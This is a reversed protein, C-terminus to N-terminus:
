LRGCGVVGGVDRRFWREAPKITFGSKDTETFTVVIVALQCVGTALVEREHQRRNLALYTILVEARRSGFRLHPEDGMQISLGGLAKIILKESM